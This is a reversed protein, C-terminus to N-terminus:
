FSIASLWDAPLVARRRTLFNVLILHGMSSGVRGVRLKSVTPRDSFLEECAYAIRIRLIIEDCAIINQSSNGMGENVKRILCGLKWDKEM